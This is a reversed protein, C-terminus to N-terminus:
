RAPVPAPANKSWVEKFDPSLRLDDAMVLDVIGLVKSRMGVRPAHAAQRVAHWCLETCYFAAPDKTRFLNDYPKGLQALGYKVVAQRDAADFATARLLAVRHRPTRQVYAVIPEKFVGQAKPGVPTESALAHIIEGGGAYIAGHIFSTRGGWIILDGPQAQATLTSIETPALRQLADSDPTGPKPKSFYAQAAKKAMVNLAGWFGDRLRGFFGRKPGAAAEALAERSARAAEAYRYGEPTDGALEALQEHTEALRTLVRAAETAEGDEGMGRSPTESLSLSLFRAADAELRQELSARASRKAASAAQEGTALQGLAGPAGCGALTALALVGALWPTLKKSAM